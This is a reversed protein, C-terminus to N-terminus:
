YLFYDEPTENDLPTDIDRWGKASRWVDFRENYIIKVEKGIRDTLRLRTDSDMLEWVSMLTRTIRPYATLKDPGANLIDGITVLKRVPGWPFKNKLYRKRGVWARNRETLLLHECCRTSEVQSDLFEFGHRIINPDRLLWKFALEWNWKRGISLRIM